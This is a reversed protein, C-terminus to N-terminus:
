ESDVFGTLEELTKGAGDLRRYVVEVGDMVIYVVSGGSEAQPDPSSFAEFREGGVEVTGVQRVPLRAHGAHASFQYESFQGRVDWGKTSSDADENCGRARMHCQGNSRAVIEVIAHKYDGTKLRAMWTSSTLHDVKEGGLPLSYLLKLGARVERPSLGDKARNELPAAPKYNRPADPNDVFRLLTRSFAPSNASHKAIVEVGGVLIATIAGGQHKVTYAEFKEDGISIVSRERNVKAAKAAASTYDVQYSHEGGSGHNTDGDSYCSCHRWRIQKSKIEMFDYRKFRPTTMSKGDRDPSGEWEVSYLLSTGPGLKRKSLGPQSRVGTKRDEAYGKKAEDGAEGDSPDVKPEDSVWEESAHGGVSPSEEDELDEVTAAESVWWGNVLHTVRLGAARRANLMAYFESFDLCQDQGTDAAAFEEATLERPFRPALESLSLKRDRNADMRKLLDPWSDEWQAKFLTDEDAESMAPAPGGSKAALFAELEERSLSLNDNVDGALFDAPALVDPTARELAARRAADQAQHLERELKRARSFCEKFEIKGNKDADNAKILTAVRAAPKAEVKQAQTSWVFLSLLVLATGARTWM